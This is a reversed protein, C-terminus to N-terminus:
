DRKLQAHVMKEEEKAEQVQTVKCDRIDEMEMMAYKEQSLKLKVDAATEEKQSETQRIGLLSVDGQCVDGLESTTGKQDKISTFFEEDEVMTVVSFERKSDPSAKVITVSSIKREIPSSPTLPSSPSIPFSSLRDKSFQDSPSSLASGKFDGEFPLPETMPIRVVEQEQQSLSRSVIDQKAMTVSMASETKLTLHPSSPSQSTEPMIDLKHRACLAPSPTQAQLSSVSKGYSSSPVQSQRSMVQGSPVKSSPTFSPSFAAKATDSLTNRSGLKPSPTVAWPSTPTKLSSASSPTKILFSSPPSSGLSILVLSPGFGREMDPSSDPDPPTQTVPFGTISYNKHQSTPIASTIDPIVQPMPAIPTSTQLPGPNCAEENKLVMDKVDAEFTQRSSTPSPIFLSSPASTAMLETHPEPNPGHITNDEPASNPDHAQKKYQSSPSNGSSVMKAEYQPLAPSQNKSPENELKTGCVPIIETNEAQAPEELVVPQQQIAFKVTTAERGAGEVGKIGVPDSGRRLGFITLSKRRKGVNPAVGNAPELSSRADKFMSRLNYGGDKREESDQSHDLQDGSSVLPNPDGHLKKDTHTVRFRGVSFVTQEGPRQKFRSSRSQRRGKKSRVQACLHCSNHDAGSHVTHHHPPVGSISEKRLRPDHLVCTNNKGLMESLAEMNAENEIICKLIQEVTDQNEEIDDDVNGAVKEEEEEDDMDGTRCHYGKKKLLHCILFGLLGTLFFFFVVLFIMYPPPHEGEGPVELETM